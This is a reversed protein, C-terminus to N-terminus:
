EVKTDIHRKIKRFTTKIQKQKGLNPIFDKLFTLASKATSITSSITMDPSMVIGEMNKVIDIPENQDFQQGIQRKIYTVHQKFKSEFIKKEGGALSDCLQNLNDMFTPRGKGLRIKWIDEFSIRSLPLTFNLKESHSFLSEALAQTEEDLLKTSAEEMVPLTFTMLSDLSMSDAFAMHHYHALIPSIKEYEDRGITYPIPVGIDVCRSQNNILSRSIRQGNRKAADNIRDLKELQEESINKFHEKQNLLNNELFTDFQFSGRTRSKFSLSDCIKLFEQYNVGTTKSLIVELNEEFTDVSSLSQLRIAHDNEVCNMYVMQNRRTGKGQVWSRFLDRWHKVEKDHDTTVVVILDSMLSRFCTSEVEPGEYRLIIRQLGPNDLFYGEPLVLEQQTLLAIKLSSELAREYPELLGSSSYRLWPRGDSDYIGPYFGTSYPNRAM